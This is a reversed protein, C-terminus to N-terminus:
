KGDATAEGVYNLKVVADYMEIDFYAATLQVIKFSTKSLKIRDDGDFSWSEEIGGTGSDFFRGDNMFTYTNGSAVSKWVTGYTVGKIWKQDIGGDSSSDDSSIDDSKKPMETTPEYILVSGEPSKLTLKQESIEVISFTLDKYDKVLIKDGDLSYVMQYDTQDRFKGGQAFCMMTFFDSGEKLKWRKEDKDGALWALADTGKLDEGKLVSKKCGAYSVLLFLIAIYGLAKKSVVNQLINRHEQIKSKM